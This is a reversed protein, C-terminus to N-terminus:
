SAMIIPCVRTPPCVVVFTGLAVAIIAVLSEVYPFGSSSQKKSTWYLLPLLVVTAILPLLPTVEAYFGISIGLIVWVTLKISVFNLQRM